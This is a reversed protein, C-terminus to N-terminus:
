GFRHMLVHIPLLFIISVVSAQVSLFPHYFEATGLGRGFRNIEKIPTRFLVMKICKHNERMMFFPQDPICVNRFRM